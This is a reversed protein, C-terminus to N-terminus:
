KDYKPCRTYPSLLYSEVYFEQILVGDEGEGEFRLGFIYALETDHSGFIYVEDVIGFEQHKCEYRRWAEQLFPRAKKYTMGLHLNSTAREAIAQSKARETGQYHLLALFTIAVCFLIGLLILLVTIIKRMNMTLTIRAVALASRVDRRLERYYISPGM